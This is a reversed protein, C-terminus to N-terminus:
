EWRIYLWLLIAIKEANLWKVSESVTYEISPLIGQQELFNLFCDDEKLRNMVRIIRKTFGHDITTKERFEKFNIHPSIDVKFFCILPDGLSDSLMYFDNRSIDSCCSNLCICFDTLILVFEIFHAKPGNWIIDRDAGGLLENFNYMIYKELTILHLNGCYFQAFVISIFTM